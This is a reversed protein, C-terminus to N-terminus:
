QHMICLKIKNNSNNNPNCSTFHSQDITSQCATFLKQFHVQIRQQDDETLLRPGINRTHVNEEKSTCHFHGDEPLQVQGNLEFTVSSASLSDVPLEKCISGNETMDKQSSRQSFHSSFAKLNAELTGSRVQVVRNITYVLYLPEDPATFPLM